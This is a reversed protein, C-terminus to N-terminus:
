GKWPTVTVNGSADATITYRNFRVLQTPVALVVSQPGLLVSGDREFIIELNTTGVYDVAAHSRYEAISSPLDKGNEGVPQWGTGSRRGMAYQNTNPNILMHWQSRTSVAKARLMKLSAAIESAASRIRYQPMLQTFAPITVLAVIGVIGVVTLLEALSYGRSGNKRRNV